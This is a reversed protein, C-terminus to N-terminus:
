VEKKGRLCTIKGYPEESSPDKGDKAMSRREPTSRMKGKKKGSAREGFFSSSEEGVPPIFTIGKYLSGKESVSLVGAFLGKKGKAPIGKEGVSHSRITGRKPDTLGEAGGKLFSATKAKERNCSGKWSRSSGGV